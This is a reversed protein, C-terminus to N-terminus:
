SMIRHSPCGDTYYQRLVEQAPKHQPYFDSNNGPSHNYPSGEGRHSWPNPDSSWKWWYVGGFFPRLEENCFITRLTAEYYNAQCSLCPPDPHAPHYFSAPHRFMNRYSCGGDESWIIPMKAKAPWWTKNRTASSGGRNYYFDAMQKIYPEFGAM